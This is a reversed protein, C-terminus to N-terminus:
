FCFFILASFRNFTAVCLLSLLFINVMAWSKSCTFLIVTRERMGPLSIISDGHNRGFVLHFYAEDSLVWLNHKICLTAIREREAPSALAGTPNHFDNWIFIKSLNSSDILLLHHLIPPSGHAESVKTKPTILRQIHEFDPSFGETTEKYYYPKPIGGYFNILSEYIPYGPTPYLVEDGEELLTLLFKAIVPKGGPQVIVEDKSIPIGRERTANVAIAERLQLIGEPSVYGTKGEDLAKKAGDV